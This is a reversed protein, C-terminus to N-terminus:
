DTLKKPMSIIRLVVRRNAAQNESIARGSLDRNPFQPLTDSFGIARLNKRNFGSKEFIRLVSAARFSSLEWNSPFRSDNIPNDDTHGEVVVMMNESNKLIIPALTEILHLADPKVEIKGPDFFLSGSFSVTIGKADMDFHLQDALQKAEAENKLQSQLNQLPMKYDGGFYKTTEKRAKEYTDVDIKSFSMLMVFFGFLLTMMDSYSILWNSESDEHSASHHSLIGTLSSEYDRHSSSGNKIDEAALSKDKVLSLVDLESGLVMPSNHKGRVTGRRLRM